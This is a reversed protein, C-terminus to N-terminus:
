QGPRTPANLAIAHAAAISQAALSCVAACEDNGSFDDAAIREAALMESLKVKALEIRSLSDRLSAKKPLRRQAKVAAAPGGLVPTYIANTCTSYGGAKVGHSKLTGTFGKREEVGDIREEVWVATRGELEYRAQRPSLSVTGTTLLERVWKSVQVAFRPNCWQALHIAIDPHVWTGQTARNGGKRIV